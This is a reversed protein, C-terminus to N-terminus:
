VRRDGPINGCGPSETEDGRKPEGRKWINAADLAKYRTESTTRRASMPRLPPQVASAKPHPEAHRVARPFRLPTLKEPQNRRRTGTTSGAVLESSSGYSSLWLMSRSRRRRPGLQARTPISAWPRGLNRFTFSRLGPHLSQTESVPKDRDIQAFALAVDSETRPDPIRPVARPEVDALQRPRRLIAAGRPRSRSASLRPFAATDGSQPVTGRRIPVSRDRSTVRPM